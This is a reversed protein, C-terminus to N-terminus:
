RIKDASFNSVTEVDYKGVGPSFRGKLSAAQQKNMVKLTSRDEKGISYRPNNNKGSVMHQSGILPPLDYSGPGAMHLHFSGQKSYRRKLGRIQRRFESKIAKSSIETGDDMSTNFNTSMFKSKKPSMSNMYRLQRRKQKPKEMSLAKPHKGLKFAVATANMRDKENNFKPIRIKKQQSKCKSSAKDSSIEGNADNSDLKPTKPGDESNNGSNNGLDIDM